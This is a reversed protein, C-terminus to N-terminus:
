LVAAWHRAVRRSPTRSRHDGPRAQLASQGEWLRSRDHFFEDSVEACVRVVDEASKDRAKM